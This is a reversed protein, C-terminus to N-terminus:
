PLCRGEAISQMMSTYAYCWWPDEGSAILATRYDDLTVAVFERDLEAAIEAFSRDGPAAAARVAPGDDLVAEALADAAEDRTVTAFRGADPLRVVGDGMLAHVFDIFLGARVVRVDEIAALLAQETAGNTRGYCFPSGPDADISSLYAVRRVGADAAATVVALHQRLVVDAEGDSSVFVLAAVEALAIRMSDPDDYDFLRCAVGGAVQSPDRALAVVPVGAAALRSVARGGVRGTAGTVAVVGPHM